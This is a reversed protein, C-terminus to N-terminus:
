RNRVTELSSQFRSFFWFTKVMSKHQFDLNNWNSKINKIIIKYGYQPNSCVSIENKDLTRRLIQTDPWGASVSGLCLLNWLFQSFQVMWFLKQIWNRKFIRLIVSNLGGHIFFSVNDLKQYMEICERKLCTYDIIKKLTWYNKREKKICYYARWALQSWITWLHTDKNM